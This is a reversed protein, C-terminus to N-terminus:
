EHKAAAQGTTHALFVRNVQETTFTDVHPFSQRLHALVKNCRAASSPDHAVTNFIVLGGEACRARLGQAFGRTDVGQALDLDDFLDVLVLGYRRPLAQVQVIADGQVLELERLADLGFHERAIRVMAPDIEVATIPANLGLERRLIGPVSGGGLGLLLVSEPPHHQVAARELARQWVRHLSGFSQNAQASNLVKRGYEWRVELPGHRGEARAVHMPRMWSIWRLLGNIGM